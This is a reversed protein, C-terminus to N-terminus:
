RLAAQLAELRALKSALAAREADAAASIAARAAALDSEVTAPDVSALDVADEALVTLGAPTVDAFGGNVFFRREAAGGLIRLAGPKLTAMFPAHRALVGFEGESGPAVVHEVEGHFLEREPSVLSFVFKEAM